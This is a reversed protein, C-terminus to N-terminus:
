EDEKEVARSNYRYGTLERQLKVFELAVYKCGWGYSNIFLAPEIGRHLGVRYALGFNSLLAHPSLNRIGM